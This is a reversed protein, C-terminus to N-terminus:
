FARASQCGRSSRPLVPFFRLGPRGDVSRQRQGRRERRARGCPLHVAFRRRGDGEPRVLREHAGAVLEQHRLRWARAGVDDQPLHVPRSASRLPARREIPSRWRSATATVIATPAFTWSRATIARSWAKSHVTSGMRAMSRSITHPGEVKSLDLPLAAAIASSGILKLFNRRDSTDM